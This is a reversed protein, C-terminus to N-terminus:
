PVNKSVSYGRSVVRESNNTIKLYMNTQNVILNNSHFASTALSFTQLLHKLKTQLM